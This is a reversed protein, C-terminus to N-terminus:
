VRGLAHARPHAMRAGGRGAEAAILRLAVRHAKRSKGCGPPGVLLAVKPGGGGGNNNNQRGITGHLWERLADLKKKAVM